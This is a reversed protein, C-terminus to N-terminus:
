NHNKGIVSSVFRVTHVGVEPLETELLQIIEQEWRLRLHYLMAPEAVRLLLVDRRIELGSVHQLLAPGARQELLSVLRQRCVCKGLRSSPLLAQVLSGVAEPARRQPHNRQVWALERETM